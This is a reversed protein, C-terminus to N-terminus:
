PHNGTTVTFEWSSTIMKRSLCVSLCETMIYIDGGDGGDNDDFDRMEDSVKRHDRKSCRIDGSRILSREQLVNEGM